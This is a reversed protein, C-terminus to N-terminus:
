FLIDSYDAPAPQKREKLNNNRTYETYNPWTEGYSKLEPASCVVTLHSGKAHRKLRSMAVYVTASDTSETIGIVMYRSEWGKFSHITCAKIRADGMFFNMKKPKQERQSQSFIHLVNFGKKEVLAVCELGILHNPLLLTVDPYAVIDLSAYEPIALTAKACVGPLNKEFPM